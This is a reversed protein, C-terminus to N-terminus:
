HCQANNKLRTLKLSTTFWKTRFKREVSLIDKLICIDLDICRKREAKMNAATMNDPM